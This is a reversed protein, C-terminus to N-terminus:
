QLPSCDIPAWLENQGYNRFQGDPDTEKVLARWEPDGSFAAWREQRENLDAWALIYHLDNTNGVVSTWAGVLRIGHKAYYRVTHANMRAVLDNLRGPSAHYRRYEYILAV